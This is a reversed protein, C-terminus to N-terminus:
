YFHQMYIRAVHKPFSRVQYKTLTVSIEQFEHHRRQGWIEVSVLMLNLIDSFERTTTIPVFIVLGIQGSKNKQFTVSISSSKCWIPITRTKLYKLIQTSREELKQELKFLANTKIKHFVRYLSVLSVEQLKKLIKKNALWKKSRLLTIFLNILTKNLFAM